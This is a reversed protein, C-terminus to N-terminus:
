REGAEPHRVDSPRRGDARGLFDRLDAHFVDRSETWYWFYMSSFFTLNALTFAPVLLGPRAMVVAFATTYALLSPLARWGISLVGSAAMGTYGLLSLANSEETSLGGLWGGVLSVLHVAPALIVLMQVRRNLLSRSLSDRAWVAFGVGVLLMASSLALWTARGQPLWLAAPQGATWLIGAVFMVFGRTRAGTTRDEAHRLREWRQAEEAKARALAERVEPGVDPDDAFLLEAAGPEHHRLHWEGARDTAERWSATAEPDGPWASLVRRAAARAASARAAVLSGQDTALVERLGELQARAEVLLSRAERRDVAWQWADLFAEVSAFRAAPDAALSRDLVLAFEPTPDPPREPHGLAAVALVERLATTGSSEGTARYLPRGHLIEYALAGLLWVDTAVSLPEGRAQEPAMYAPTGAVAAREGALPLGPVSCVPLAAALGWDLVYVAGYRGIMVNQPKLDRHLVGRSHAFAVAHCVQVLVRAHWRLPDRAGDAPVGDRLHDSWPRGEVRQMVLMPGGDEDRRLDHVPIVNPHALAGTVLAERILRARLSAAPVRTRKVAVSRELAHQEAALVVGMGGEGLREGVTLGDGLSRTVVDDADSPRLTRLTLPVLDDALTAVTERTDSSSM